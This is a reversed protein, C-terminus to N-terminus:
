TFSAWRWFTRQGALPGASSTIETGLNRGDTTDVFAVSGTPDGGGVCTVIANIQVPYGPDALNQFPPFQVSVSTNAAHAPPVPPSGGLVALLVVLALAGAQLRRLGRSGSPVVRFSM